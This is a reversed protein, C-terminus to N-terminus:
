RAGDSGAEARRAIFADLADRHIRITGRGDLKIFPIKRQRLLRRVLRPGCKLYVAAENVGFIPSDVAANV